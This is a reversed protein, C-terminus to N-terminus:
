AWPHKYDYLYLEAVNVVCVNYNNKPVIKLIVKTTSM